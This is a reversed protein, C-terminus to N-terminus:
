VSGMQFKSLFLLSFRIYIKVNIISFANQFMLFDVDIPMKIFSVHWKLGCFDVSDLSEQMTIEFMTANYNKLLCNKVNEM